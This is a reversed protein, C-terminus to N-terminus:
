KKIILKNVFIEYKVAKSHLIKCYIKAPVKISNKSKLDSTIVNYVHKPVGQICQTSINFKHM